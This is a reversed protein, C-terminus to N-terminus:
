ALVDDHGNNRAAIVVLSDWPCDRERLFKLIDLRGIKAAWYCLDNDPYEMAGNDMCWQLINLQGYMVAMLASSRWPVRNKRAWQLVHLHGCKAAVECMDDPITMGYHNYLWDLCPVHGRSAAARITEAD